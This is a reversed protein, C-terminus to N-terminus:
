QWDEDRLAGNLHNLIETTRVAVEGNQRAVRDAALGHWIVGQAAAQLPETPMAALRGGILGALIDGSGGRALVPGGEVGFYVTGSEHIRTIPGKLVTVANAPWEENSSAAMIRDFEGQHPTLVRPAQGLEVLEPQLADADLVLPVSGERLLDEVLAMTEPERGLGPGIVMATARTQKTRILVGSEMAINGDPTEPCGVWMAEPWQAALAPALSDPVFATVLGVGSQLAAAVSMAVAGPYSRSGGLVALHGYSRKDSRFPRLRRLPDLVAPTLVRHSSEYDHDDMTFGLDVYRLRGAAPLELLPSKLIGTAYTVDAEFGGPANWGTPLDVAAKITAGVRRTAEMWRAALDPLPPRYQFGFVGDLIVMYDGQVQEIRVATVRATGGLAFLIRWAKAALPRLRNQGFVFGVEIHWAPNVRLLEAAALMADGGNHGKGVLVLARPSDSPKGGAIALDGRLARGLTAGAQSMAAWERAEDGKLWGREFEAAEACSLIPHSGSLYSM